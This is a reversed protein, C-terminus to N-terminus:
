YVDKRYRGELALSEVIEDGLMARLTIDVELAMGNLSGCVMIAAGASIYANIESHMREILHQVYSSQEGNRSWAFDFRALIGSKVWMDLEEQLAPDFNPGREGFLLWHGRTGTLESEKLHARLGALGTGNGILLLPRNGVPRHFSPNERIRLDIEAGIPAYWTLWGSGVGMELPKVVQRVLLELAGDKQMSAITYSRSPTPKLSRMLEIPAARFFHLESFRRPRIEAIDGASWKPLTGSGPVLRLHYLPGGPGGPNLHRRGALRWPEFSPARLAHPDVNAGLLALEQGWRREANVDDGDMEVREFRRRADSASLWEDVERGFRCFDPYERDGLALVAYELHEYHGPKSMIHKAFSRASDPPSGDGHTSIILLATRASRLDADCLQSMPIVKASQQAAAFAAATVNALRIAGGTQSAHVVLCDSGTMEPREAIHFGSQAKRTAREKERRTTFLLLGTALFIPMALSSAMVLLRGALGFFSGSHFALISSIFTRGISRDAALDQRLLAGTTTDFFYRDLVGDRFGGRVVREVRIPGNGRPMSIAADGFDEPVQRRFNRWVLDLSVTPMSPEFDVRRRRREEGRGGSKADNPSHDSPSGKDQDTESKLDQTETGLVVMVATRYWDYSWVLGTLAVLLYCLLVWGGVIVHIQHYLNRGTRRLDIVFWSRWDSPRRPWGLYLGSLSFFVLVLASIGTIQRGIFSSKEGPMPSIAMFRHLDEVFAFFDSAASAGLIEGTYPDVYMVGRDRGLDQDKTQLRLEIARAPESSLRLQEIVAGPRQARVRQMLEDVPLLSNGIVVYAKCPSLTAVIEEEFSLMSGTVGMVALVFGITIGLWRHAQLTFTRMM